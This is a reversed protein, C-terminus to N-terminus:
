PDFRYGVERVTRLRRPASAREGLKRRLNALHVDVLHEDGFWDRGWVSALLQARTWTRRPSGALM